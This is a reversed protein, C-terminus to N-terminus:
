CWKARSGGECHPDGRSHESARGRAQYRSHDDSCNANSAFLGRVTILWFTTCLLPSHSRANQSRRSALNCLSPGGLLVDSRVLFRRPTESRSFCSNPRTTQFPSAGGGSAQLGGDLLEFFLEIRAHYGAGRVISRITRISVRHGNEGLVRSLDEMKWTTRSINFAAPPAHLIAFVNNILVEDNSKVISRRFANFLGECGLLRYTDWYGVVTQRNIHLFQSISRISIGHLKALVALSKNRQRLIGHRLNKMLKDFRESDGVASKLSELTDKGQLVGLMWQHDAHCLVYLHRSKRSQGFFTENCPGAKARRAKIMRQLARLQIDAFQGPFRDQLDCFLTKAPLGPNLKLLDRLEPWVDQYADMRTRWTIPPLSENPHRDAQRYKRASKADMGVKTCWAGNGDGM